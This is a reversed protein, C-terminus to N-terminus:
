KRNKIVKRYIKNVKEKNVGMLRYYKMVRKIRQLASQKQKM